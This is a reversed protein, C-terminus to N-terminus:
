SPAIRIKRACRHSLLHGEDDARTVTGAARDGLAERAFPEDGAHDSARPVLDPARPQATPRFAPFSSCIAASTSSISRSMPGISTAANLTPALTGALMRSSV